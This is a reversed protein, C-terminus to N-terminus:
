TLDELGFAHTAHDVDRCKCGAGVLVTRTSPDVRVYKIPALDIVLGDDCFGLGAATHGGGRISVRLANTKAMRVAAM